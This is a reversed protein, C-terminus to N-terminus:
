VAINKYYALFKNCFIKDGNSLIFKLYEDDFTSGKYSHLINFINNEEKVAQELFSQYYFSYINKKDFNILPKEEGRLIAFYGKTDACTHVFDFNTYLNDYLAVTPIEFYAMEVCVTGRATAILDPKLEIIHHNSVSEDLVHFHAAGFSNVLEITKEKTGPMGNPHIKIFVNTDKLDTLAKLTQKLYQYLDPFQLMRNIHPSDYFEHPYIVLNRKGEAFKNRLQESIPTKSFASQRMYSTAADNTGTFRFTLKEKSLNLQEESLKKDPSFLTHNIQHYPYNKSLEQLVYSYSGVTYVKINNNLCIRAPIGHHIYSSYTNVLVKINNSKIFLKFNYFVNLAVEIIHIVNKDIKELTPKHFFRLYTDYILDGVWIDEFQITLIDAGRNKDLKNVLEALEKQIFAQDKYKEENDFIMKGAFSAQIKELKKSVLKEHFAKTRKETIWDILVHYFNVQLNNKEALAKAAAALMLTYSYDEVMQVLLIGQNGTTEAKFFSLKDAFQKQVPNLQEKRYSFYLTLPKSYLFRFPSYFPRLINKVKTKM